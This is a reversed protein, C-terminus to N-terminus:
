NKERSCRKSRWTPTRKKVTGKFHRQWEEWDETFHDKVYLDTLPKNKAKKKVQELSCKVLHEARVGRAQRRLVREQNKHTCRAAAEERFRVKEPISMIEKERQAKTRHVVKKAAIEINKQITALDEEM